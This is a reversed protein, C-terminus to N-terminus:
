RREHAPLEVETRIFHQGKDPLLIEYAVLLRALDLRLEDRGERRLRRMDARHGPLRVRNIFLPAVQVEARPRPLEFRRVRGNDDCLETLHFREVARRPERLKD